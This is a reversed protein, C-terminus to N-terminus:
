CFCVFLLWAVSRFLWGPRQRNDKRHEFVIQVEPIECIGEVGAFQPGEGQGRSSNVKMPVM